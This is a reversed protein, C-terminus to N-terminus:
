LREAVHELKLVAKVVGLKNATSPDLMSFYISISETSASEDYEIPGNLGNPDQTAHTQIWWSEDAQYYDSTKNTLCVNRGHIDTIFIEAFEPHNEQFQKLKMSCKSKLLTDTLPSDPQAWIEELNRISEDTLKVSLTENEAHLQAVYSIDDLEAHILRREEDLASQIEESFQVAASPSAIVESQSNNCGGMAVSASLIFIFLLKGSM